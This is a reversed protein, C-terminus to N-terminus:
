TAARYGMGVLSAKLNQKNLGQVKTGLETGPLDPLRTKPPERAVGQGAKLKTMCTSSLKWFDPARISVGLLLARAIRVGM